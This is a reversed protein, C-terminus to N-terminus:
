PLAKREREPCDAQGHATSACHACPAPADDRFNKRTHGFQYCRHCQVFPTVELVRVRQHDINLRELELAKRWPDPEISLVANYLYTNENHRMFRLKIDTTSNLDGIQNQVKIARVLEGSAVDKSIGKLILMPNHKAVADSVKDSDSLRTLTDKRQDETVFEVRLKNNSM